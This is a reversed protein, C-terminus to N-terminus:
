ILALNNRAFIFARHCSPRLLSSSPSLVSSPATTSPVAQNWLLTTQKEAPINQVRINAQSYTYEIGVQARAEPVYSTSLDVLTHECLFISCLQGYHSANNLLCCM